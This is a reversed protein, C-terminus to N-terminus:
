VCNSFPYVAAADGPNSWIGHSLGQGKLVVMGQGSFKTKYGCLFKYFSDGILQKSIIRSLFLLLLSMVEFMLCAGSRCSFSSFCSIFSELIGCLSAEVRLPRKLCLRTESCVM